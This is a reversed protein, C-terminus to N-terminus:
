ESRFGSDPFNFDNYNLGLSLRKCHQEEFNKLMRQMSEDVYETQHLQQKFSNLNNSSLDEKM